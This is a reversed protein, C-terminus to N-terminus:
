LGNLCNMHFAAQLQSGGIPLTKQGHQMFQKKSQIKRRHILLLVYRQANKCNICISQDIKPYVFGRSNEEMHIAQVPCAEKCAQCGTCLEYSCIQNM